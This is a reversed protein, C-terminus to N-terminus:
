MAIGKAKDHDNMSTWSRENISHFQWLATMRRGHFALYQAGMTWSELLYRCRGALGKEKRLIRRISTRGQHVRLCWPGSEAGNETTYRAHYLAIKIPELDNLCRVAYQEAIAMPVFKDRVLM